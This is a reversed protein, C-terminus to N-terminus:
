PAGQSYSRVETAPPFGCARALADAETLGRRLAAPLLRVAGRTRGWEQSLKGVTRVLQVREEATFYSRRTFIAAKALLEREGATLRLAASM